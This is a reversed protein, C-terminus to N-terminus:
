SSRGIQARYASPTCGMTERFARNFSAKSNFGAELALDLLDDKRGDRIMGAVSHSRLANICQSFNVGLGENLARSLYSSNTGLRRALTALTLDPDRHWEGSRTAEAWAEGLARWDRGAEGAPADSADSMAPFPHHAHRWGEIGMYLAIAAVATYLGMFGTYGLPAIADWLAFGGILPVLLLTVGVAQVLWRAAFRDDDARQTALWDRYRRLLRLGAAGYVLLGALTAATTMVDYPTEIAEAWRGKLPAPLLFSAFLFLLQGFAPALHWWGRAPWRGFVLAQIYLWGLPAIALGIQLPLFTLWSWKDYFGAFGILWPMFMGALIMLLAALTRNASRNALPRLLALALIALQALAVTLIATRWGFALGDILGM